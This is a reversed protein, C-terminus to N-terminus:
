ISLYISLHYMPWRKCTTRTTSSPYTLRSMRLGLALGFSHVFMLLALLLFTSTIILKTDLLASQGCVVESIAPPRAAECGRCGRAFLRMQYERRPCVNNNRTRAFFAAAGGINVYANVGVKIAKLQCYQIIRPKLLLVSSVLYGGRVVVLYKTTFKHNVILTRKPSPLLM